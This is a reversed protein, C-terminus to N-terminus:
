RDEHMIEEYVKNLKMVDDLFSDSPLVFGNKIEDDWDKVLRRHKDKARPKLGLLANIFRLKAKRGLSPAASFAFQPVPDSIKLAKLSADKFKLYLSEKVGGAAVEGSVVAKLIDEQNPYFILTIDKEAVGAERLMKIPLIHAATSGRFVGFRKGRLGALDNVGEKPALIVSHYFPRGDRGLAVILPEIGCNKAVIGLPVPGLLAISVEGSCLGAIVEEHNHFLKLEWRLGTAKNLYNVFPAYLNWIKEPGYFPIVAFTLVRGERGRTKDTNPHAPGPSIILSAM